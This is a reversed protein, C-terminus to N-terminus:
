LILVSDPNMFFKNFEEFTEFRETKTPTPSKVKDEEDSDGVIISKDM